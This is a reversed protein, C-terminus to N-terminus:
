GQTPLITVSWSQPVADVYPLVGHFQGVSDDFILPLIHDDGEWRPLTGIDAVPVWELDGEANSPPVSGTFTDVVFIFGFWDEGGLGFGPWSVTGRFRVDVVEIDAEERLERRLGAVVDEDRELKGGLGNFKGAHQDGARGGRHVMLVRDDRVVYALTGVIPTYPM